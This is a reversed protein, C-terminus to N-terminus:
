PFGILSGAKNTWAHEDDGILLRHEDASLTTKGTGSLGFFVTVDGDKMAGHLMALVWFDRFLYLFMLSM